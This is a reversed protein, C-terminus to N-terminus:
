GFVQKAVSEGAASIDSPVFVMWAVVIAALLFVALETYRRNVLFVLSVLGVIGGYLDTAYGKLIGAVNRGIDTGAALAAAPFLLVGLLSCVALVCVRRKAFM